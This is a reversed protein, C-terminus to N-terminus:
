RESMLSHRVVFGHKFPAVQTLLLPPYLHRQTGPNWPFCQSVPAFLEGYYFLAIFRDFSYAPTSAFFVFRKHYCSFLTEFVYKTTETLLYKIMHGSDLRQFTRTLVLFQCNIAFCSKKSLNEEETVWVKCRFQINPNGAKEPAVLKLRDPGACM